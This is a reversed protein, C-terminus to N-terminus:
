DVEGFKDGHVELLHDIMQMRHNEESLNVRFSGLVSNGPTCYSCQMMPHKVPNVDQLAEDTVLVPDRRGM